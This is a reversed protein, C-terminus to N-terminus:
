SCQVVLETFNAFTLDAVSEVYQVLVAIRHECKPFVRM